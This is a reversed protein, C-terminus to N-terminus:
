LVVHTSLYQQDRNVFDGNSVPKNREVHVLKSRFPDDFSLSRTVHLPSPPSPKVSLGLVLSPWRDTAQIATLPSTVLSLTSPAATGRVGVCYPTYRTATYARM